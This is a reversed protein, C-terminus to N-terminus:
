TLVRLERGKAMTFNDSQCSTMDPRSAQSRVVTVASGAPIDYASDTCLEEPTPPPLLHSNSEAMHRQERIGGGGGAYCGNSKDAPGCQFPGSPTDDDDWRLEQRECVGTRRPLIPLQSLGIDSSSFLRREGVSAPRFATQERLSGGDVAALV